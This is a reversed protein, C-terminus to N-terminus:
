RGEGRAEAEHADALELLRARVYLRGRDSRDNDITMSCGFHRLYAMSLRLENSGKFMRWAHGSACWCVASRSLVAVDRGSKGRAYAARTWRKKSRLERAVARAMESITPESAM